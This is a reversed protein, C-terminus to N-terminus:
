EHIEFVVSMIGNKYEESHKEHAKKIGCQGMHERLNKNDVLHEVAQVLDNYNSVSIGCNSEMIYNSSAIMKPAFCLIPRGSAMYEPIKTSLSYKTFSVIKPDFSEVHILVDAIEYIKLVENHPLFDKFKVIKDDFQKEYKEKDNKKTFVVLNVETNKFDAESIAEEVQKLARWRELHLGGAYVLNIIKNLNQLEVPENVPKVTHMLSLYKKGSLKEYARAMEESITMGFNMKSEVKDLEELLKIRPYKLLRSNSYTTERWNDMHHLVIPIEFSTSFYNALRLSFISSGLTYVVDPSFKRVKELLEENCEINPKLWDDYALIIKKINNLLSPKNRIEDEVIKLTMNTKFKGKYLKSIINYLPKTKSELKLSFTANTVSNNTVPYYYVELLEDRNFFNIISRLTIGTSNPVNISHSNVILIKKKRM